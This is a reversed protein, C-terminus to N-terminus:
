PLTYSGSNDGPSVRLSRYDGQSKLTKCDQESLFDIRGDARPRKADTRSGDNAWACAGTKAIVGSSLVTLNETFADTDRSPLKSLHSAVRVNVDGSAEVPTRSM